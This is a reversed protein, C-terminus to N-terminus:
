RTKASRFSWFKVLLFNVPFCLTDNLVTLVEKPIHLAYVWLLSLLSSLGIGTAIYSLYTKLLATHWPVAREEPSTFVYKRNLLFAWAVSLVFGFVLAVLFDFKCSWDLLKQLFLVGNYVAMNVVGSSIGVGAFLLVQKVSTKDRTKTM